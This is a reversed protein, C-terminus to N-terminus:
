RQKIWDLGERITMREFCKIASKVSGNVVEIGADNLQKVASNFLLPLHSLSQKPPGENNIRPEQTGDVGLLLIKKPRFHYALGLAGYASNGTHIKNKDESLGLTCSWRWLYWEPSYREEPEQGQTAVRELCTVGHPVKPGTTPDCACYYRSKLDRNRLRSLNAESRDLTFFGNYYPLYDAAGNVALIFGTDDYLKFWLSDDQELENLSPGSAVIVIYDTNM